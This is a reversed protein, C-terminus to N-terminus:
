RKALAQQRRDRRTQLLLESLHQAERGHDRALHETLHRESAFRLECRPCQRATDM